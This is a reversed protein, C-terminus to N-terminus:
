ATGTALTDSDQFMSYVVWGTAADIVHVNEKRRGALSDAIISARELEEILQSSENGLKGSCVVRFAVAAFRRGQGNQHHATVTCCQRAACQLSWEAVDASIAWM